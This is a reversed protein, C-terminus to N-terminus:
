GMKAIRRGPSKKGPSFNNPEWGFLSLFSRPAPKFTTSFPFFLINIRTSWHTHCDANCPTFRSKLKWWIQRRNMIGVSRWHTVGSTNKYNVVSLALHCHNKDNHSLWSIAISRNDNSHLLSLSEINRNANYRRTNGIVDALSYKLFKLNMAHMSLSATINHHEKM